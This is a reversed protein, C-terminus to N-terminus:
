DIAIDHVKPYDIQVALDVAGTVAARSWMGMIADGAVDADDVKGATATIYLTKNDAVDNASAATFSGKVGYWGYTDAVTAAMAIAVPGVANAALLATAYEEDYTVSLGAATSAVGELYIYENGDVDVARTGLKHQVATDVTTTDSEFSQTYGTLSAM